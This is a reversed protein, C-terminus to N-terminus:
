KTSEAVVPEEVKSQEKTSTPASDQEVLVLDVGLVPHGVYHDPVLDIVKTKTNKILIAM